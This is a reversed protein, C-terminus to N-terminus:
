DIPIDTVDIRKARPPELRTIYFDLVARLAVLLGRLAETLQQGLEPPVTGRVAEILATIGSLDPFAGVGPASSGESSAWGSPPAEGGAARVADEAASQAERVLREADAFAQEHERRAEAM